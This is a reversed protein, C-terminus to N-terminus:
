EQTLLKRENAGGDTLFYDTRESSSILLSHDQMRYKKWSPLEDLISKFKGGYGPDKTLLKLLTIAHVKGVASDTIKSISPNELFDNVLFLCLECALAQQLLAVRGHAAGPAGGLSVAQQEATTTPDQASRADVGSGEMVPGEGPTTNLSPAQVTEVSTAGYSEQYPLNQPTHQINQPVARSSEQPLPNSGFLPTPTPDQPLPNSGMLAPNGFGTSDDDDDDDDLHQQHYTPQPSTDLVTSPPQNLSNAGLSGRIAFEHLQSQHAVASEDTSENVHSQNPATPATVNAMVQASGFFGSSASMGPQPINKVRSTDGKPESITGQHTGGVTSLPNSVYPSPQPAGQTFTSNNQAGQKSPTGLSDNQLPNQATFVRSVSSSTGQNISGHQFQPTYTAPLPNSHTQSTQQAAQDGLPHSQVQANPAFGFVGTQSRSNQVAQNSPFSHSAPQSYASYQINQSASQGQYSASAFSQHPPSGMPQTPQQNWGPQPVFQPHELASGTAPTHIHHMQHQPAQSFGSPRNLYHHQGGVSQNAFSSQSPANGSSFNQLPNAVPAPSSSSAGFMALPDDGLNVRQRNSPGDGPAPSPAMAIYEHYLFHCQETPREGFAPSPAAAPVMGIMGDSGTAAKDVNGLAMQFTKLLTEIMISSDPHLRESGIARIICDVVGGRKDNDSVTALAEVNSMRNVAVHLVRVSVLLPTGLLDRKLVRDLTAVVRPVYGWEALKDCLSERVKFVFVIAKTVVQLIDQGALALTSSESTDDVTEHDTYNHIEKVWTQLLSEVFKTPDRLNYTPDKLYRSVYVGGIYLEGKLNSYKVRIEPPLYLEELYDANRDTRNLLCKDLEVAIVSRLEARMSANWILEPSEVEDDFSRLMAEPQEKLLRTLAVPLFRQLSPEAMTGTATDWLMRSLTKAAGLRATWAKTFSRYGVLVGLLELWASSAMLQKAISPSSSLAELISWARSKRKSNEMENDDQKPSQEEASEPRELVSLVRWLVGTKAVTTAFSMQQGLILLTDCGADFTESEPPVELLSFLTSVFLDSEFLDDSAQIKVLLRIADVAMTFEPGLIDVDGDHTTNGFTEEFEEDIPIQGSSSLIGSRNLSLAIFKLVSEAFLPVDQIKPLADKGKANFVRVYVCGLNFEKGLTEFAFDKVQDLEQAIDNAAKKSRSTEISDLFTELEKRMSVNWIICPEEVNSNLLNLLDETQRNGLKQAIPKTLLTDFAELLSPIKKSGASAGTLAALARVSTKALLNTSQVSFGSKDHQHSDTREATPDFELCLRILPWLIGCGVLETQISESRSLNIVGELACLRISSDQVNGLSIIREGICMKWDMLLDTTGDLALISERGSEYFAIGTMTKVIYEITNSFSSRSLGAEPGRDALAELSRISVRLLIALIRVGGQSVLEEANM